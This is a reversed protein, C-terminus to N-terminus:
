NIKKNRAKSLEAMLKARSKVWRLDVLRDQELPSIILYEKRIDEGPKEGVPTSIACESGGKKPKVFHVEKGKEAESLTTTIYDENERFDEKLKSAADSMLKGLHEKYSQVVDPNIFPQYASTLEFAKFILDVGDVKQGPNKLKILYALASAYKRTAELTRLVPSNSFSCVARKNTTDKNHTCDRCEDYWHEGEKVRTSDKKKLCTMLGEQLFWLAAKEELSLNASNKVIEKNADLILESINRLPAAKLGQDAERLLTIFGRDETTPAFLAYNTDIVVGFRNKLAPDFAFTGQYLGNGLNATAILARYGDRGLQETLGEHTVQGNLPGYFQNQKPTPTRNIEDIFHFLAKINPSLEVAPVAIGGKERGTYQTYISQSPEVVNTEPNVDIRVAEGGSLKAGGFFYNHIDYAAQSKGSGFQGGLLTPMGALVAGAVIADTTNLGGILGATNTNLYIACERKIEDLSKGNLFEEKAREGLKLDNYTLKGKEM